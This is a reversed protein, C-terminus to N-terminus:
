VAGLIKAAGAGKVPKVVDLDRLAGFCLGVGLLLSFSQDPPTFNHKIDLSSAASGKATPCWPTAVSLGAGNIRYDRSSPHYQKRDYFLDPTIGLQVVIRYLPYQERTLFNFGPILEPIEVRASLTDRSLTFAFPTRIISDLGNTLNFSFGDLLWPAKSLLVHREGWRGATDLEQAKGLLATLPGSINFGALPRLGHLAYRIWKSATSRGGFEMNRRRTGAMKPATKVTYASPGGKKRLVIGEVGRMRYATVNDISGTFGMNTALKAM